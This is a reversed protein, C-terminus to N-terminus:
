KLDQMSPGVTTLFAINYKLDICLQNAWMAWSQTIATADFALIEHKLDHM